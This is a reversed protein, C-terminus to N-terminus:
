RGDDGADAARKRKQSGSETPCFRRAVHGACPAYALRDVIAKLMAGNLKTAARLRPTAAASQAAQGYQENLLTTAINQQMKMMRHPHMLKKSRPPPANSPRMTEAVWEDMTARWPSGEACLAANFRLWVEAFFDPYLDTLLCGGSWSRFAYIIRDSSSKAIEARWQLPEQRVRSDAAAFWLYPPHDVLLGASEPVQALLSPHLELAAAHAMHVGGGMPAPLASADDALLAARAHIVAAAALRASAEASREAQPATARPRVGCLYRGWGERFGIDEGIEHENRGAQKMKVVMKRETDRYNSGYFRERSPWSDRCVSKAAKVFSPLMSIFWGTTENDAFVTAAAVMAASSEASEVHTTGFRADAFVMRREHVSQAAEWFTLRKEHTGTVRYLPALTMGDVIAARTVECDRAQMVIGGMLEQLVAVYGSTQATYTSGVFQSTARKSEDYAALVRGVRRCLELTRGGGPTQTWKDRSGLDRAAREAAGMMMMGILAALSAYLRQCAFADARGRAARTVDCEEAISSATLAAREAAAAALVHDSMVVLVNMCMSTRVIAHVERDGLSNCAQLAQATCETETFVRSALGLVGNMAALKTEMWRFVDDHCAPVGLWALVALGTSPSAGGPLAAVQLENSLQRRIAGLLTVASRLEDPTHERPEQQAMSFLLKVYSDAIARDQQEDQLLGLSAFLADAGFLLRARTAADM